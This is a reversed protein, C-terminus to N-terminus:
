KSLSDDKKLANKINKVVKAPEQIKQALSSLAQSAYYIDALSSSEQAVISDLKQFLL